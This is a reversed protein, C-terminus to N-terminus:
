TEEHHDGALHVPAYHEAFLAAVLAGRSSVGAKEFIRRLAALARRGLSMTLAPLPLVRV